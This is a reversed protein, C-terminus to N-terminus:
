RRTKSPRTLHSPCTDPFSPSTRIRPKELMHATIFTFNAKRLAARPYSQVRIFRQSKRLIQDFILGTAPPPPPSSNSLVNVLSCEGCRRDKSLRGSFVGVIMSCLSRSSTTACSEHPRRRFRGFTSWNQGVRFRRRGFTALEPDSKAFTPGLQCFTPQFRRSARSCLVGPFMLRTIEFYARPMQGLKLPTPTNEPRIDLSWRPAVLRPGQHPQKLYKTSAEM